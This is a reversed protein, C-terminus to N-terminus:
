TGKNHMWNIVAIVGVAVLAAVAVTVVPHAGALHVLAAVAAVIGGGAVLDRRPPSVEVHAPV